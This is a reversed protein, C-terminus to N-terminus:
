LIHKDKLFEIVWRNRKAVEEHKWSPLYVSYARKQQNELVVYRPNLVSIASSLENWMQPSIKSLPLSDNEYTGIPFHLSVKIKTQSLLSLSTILGDFRTLHPKQFEPERLFHVIDFMMGTNIGCSNLYHVTEITRDFDDRTLVNEIMIQNHDDKHKLLLRVVSETITSRHLLLYDCRQGETLLHETELFVSNLSGLLIKGLWTKSENFGATRGHIGKVHIGLENARKILHDTWKWGIM